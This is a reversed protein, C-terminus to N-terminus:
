RDEFGGPFFRKLVGFAEIFLLYELHEADVVLMQRVQEIKCMLRPDDVAADVDAQLADDRQLRAAAGLIAM